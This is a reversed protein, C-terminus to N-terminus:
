RKRRVLIRREEETMWSYKPDFVARADTTPVTPEPAPPPFLLYKVLYYIAIFLTIPFPTFAAELAECEDELRTSIASRIM